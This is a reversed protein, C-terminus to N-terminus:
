CVRNLLNLALRASNREVAAEAEEGREGDHSLTEKEWNEIQMKCNAIKM